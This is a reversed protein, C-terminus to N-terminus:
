SPNIGCDNEQIMNHQNMTIRFNHTTRIVSFIVCKTNSKKRAIEYIYVVYWGCSTGFFYKQCMVLLYKNIEAVIHAINRNKGVSEM